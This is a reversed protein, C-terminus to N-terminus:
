LKLVFQVAFALAVFVALLAGSFFEAFAADTFEDLVSPLIGPLLAVEDSAICNSCAFVREELAVLLKYRIREGDLVDEVSLVVREPAIKVISVGVVAWATTSSNWRRM